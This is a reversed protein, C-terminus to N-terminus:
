SGSDSPDPTPGSHRRGEQIGRRLLPPPPAAPTTKQAHAPAYGVVGDTAERSGGRRLLPIFSDASRATGKQWGKPVVTNMSM